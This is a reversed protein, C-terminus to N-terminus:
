EAKQLESELSELLERAKPSLTTPVDVQVVVVLSGRGRGDLRAGGIEFGGELDDTAVEPCRFGEGLLREPDIGRRALTQLRIQQLPSNRAVGTWM